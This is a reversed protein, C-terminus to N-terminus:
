LRRYDCGMWEEPRLQLLGVDAQFLFKWCCALDLPYIREYLEMEIELDCVVQLSVYM